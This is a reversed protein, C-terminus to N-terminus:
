SEYFDSQEYNFKFAIYIYDENTDNIAVHMDNPEIVLTDGIEFVLKRGNIIL